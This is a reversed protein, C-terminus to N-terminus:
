SAHAGVKDQFQRYFQEFTRYDEATAPQTGFWRPEDFFVMQSFLTQMGTEARYRTFDSERAIERNTMNATGSFFADRVVRSVSALFLFHIAHRYDGQEFAAQAQQIFSEQAQIRQKESVRPQGALKVHRERFHRYLWWALFIVVAALLIVSAIKFAWEIMPWTQPPINMEKPLHQNLWKGLWEGFNFTNEKPADQLYRQYDAGDLIAGAELRLDENSQSVM